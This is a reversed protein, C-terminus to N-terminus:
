ESTSMPAPRPHRIKGLISIYNFHIPQIRRNSNELVKNWKGFGYLNKSHFNSARKDSKNWILGKLFPAVLFLPGKSITLFSPWLRAAKMPQHWTVTSFHCGIQGTSKFTLLAPLWESKMSNLSISNGSDKGQPPFIHCINPITVGKSDKSWKLDVLTKSHRQSTNTSKHLTSTANLTAHRWAAEVSSATLIIGNIHIAEIYVGPAILCSNSRWGGWLSFCHIMYVVYVHLIMYDM